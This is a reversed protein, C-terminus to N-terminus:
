ACRAASRAPSAPCSNWGPSAPTARPRPSTSTSRRRRRRALRAGDRTIEAFGRGLRIVVGAIGGDRVLLNSGVGIVTVPVDAPRAPSSPPSTTPTPRGSCCRPRAASASGPSAPWRRTRADAPRAGAAPARDARESTRPAGAMMRAGGDRRSSRRARGPLAYAWTTINGAGLCVVLDGPKAVSASWRRGAREARALPLVQRHGHARLGEVLADRDAGEIPQEGAAYVDAVIVTDADNFCTCFDEFLDRLRTYRHPQVVAIVRGTRPAARAASCCRPSRSRTTATTTSSPSATAMAPAHHLPAQRRRLRRAGQPDGDDDVGLERAVAIAALANQVNHQGAMPLHLDAIRASPAAARDRDGRRLPRRRGVARVNVARVDAQPNFGYTVIRRDAVQPIMAQVEPHDICLAAFGYFPINEVFDRFAKSCRTSTATTTSTSPTSTPSSPSRDGAAQHLHRRERRGRGGDLRRRRAARQHRLRQHHRRQDRDPRARRRRAPRRGDLHDHDQRPHRRDRGVMEPADARGADRRPARGPHPARARRRGGSQRAQGRVLHRRGLREGLNEAAHGISSPSASSACASSTPARRCDSGQVSYGLNRLIEAIGSMGIGGIGVFHITGITLPLAKM